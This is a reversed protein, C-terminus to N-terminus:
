QQMETRRIRLREKHENVEAQKSGVRQTEVAKIKAGERSFLFQREVGQVVAIVSWLMRNHPQTEFGPPWCAYLLTFRETECLPIVEGKSHEPFCNMVEQSLGLSTQLIQEIESAASDRISAEKCSQLFSQLSMLILKSIKM